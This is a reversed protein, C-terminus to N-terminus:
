PKSAFISNIYDLSAKRYEEFVDQKFKSACVESTDIENTDEIIRSTLGCITLLSLIRQSARPIAIYTNFNKRFILSFATGHFSDTIVYQAKSFYGVFERPGADFILKDVGKYIYCIDPHRTICFLKLKKEKAIQRAIQLMPVGGNLDYVLLYKETTKPEKMMERWQKSSLLLTPDVVCPINKGHIQSLMQAGDDERCSLFDFDRTLTKIATKEEDAFVSKGFSPAYAAKIGCTVFQQFFLPAYISNLNFVQDSGTLYYDYKPLNKLLINVDEFRESLNFENKIFVKERHNRVRLGLYHMLILGNKLVRKVISNTVVNFVRYHKHSYFDVVAVNINSDLSEICKKLAYTQLIAGYNCIYITFLGVTKM